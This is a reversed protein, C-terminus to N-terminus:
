PSQGMYRFGIINLTNFGQRKVFFILPLSPITWNKNLLVGHLRTPVSISSWANFNTNTSPSHDANLDPRM